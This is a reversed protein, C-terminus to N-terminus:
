RAALTGPGRGRAPPGAEPVPDADNLHGRPLPPPVLLREDDRACRAARSAADRQLPRPDLPDRPGRPRAPQRRTRDAARDSGASRHDTAMPEREVGAALAAADDPIDLLALLRGTADLLAPSADSVAIGPPTANVAGPRPTGAPATELLLAAIRAPRLELVFALFPEDASAQVLHGIVPLEVSVVLFQGPGYTFTRGMLTTEKVGQAIVALTPEAMSALPETITPSCVVSVGPLATRTLGEGAHRAISVRLRELEDV